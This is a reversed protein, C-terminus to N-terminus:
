WDGGSHGGAQDPGIQNEDQWAPGASPGSTLTLFDKGARHSLGDGDLVASM